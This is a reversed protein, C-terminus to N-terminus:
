VTYGMKSLAKVIIRIEAVETIKYENDGFIITMTIPEEDESEEAVEEPEETVEESEETVEEPKEDIGDIKWEDVVERIQKCTMTQTVRGTDVLTYISDNELRALEAVQSVTYDNLVEIDDKVEIANIVRYAQAKGIGFTAICDAFSNFDQAWLENDKIEKLIRAVKESAKQGANIQKVIGNFATNLKSNNFTKFTTLIYNEM